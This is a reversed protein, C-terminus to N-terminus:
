DPATEFFPVMLGVEYGPDKGYARSRAPISGSILKYVLEAVPSQLEARLAACCHCRLNSEQMGSPALPQMKRLSSRTSTPRFHMNRREVNGFCNLKTSHSAYKLEQYKDM